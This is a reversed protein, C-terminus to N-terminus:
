RERRKRRIWYGGGILAIAAFSFWQIAYGLHPGESLDIEVQPIPAARSEEDSNTQALYLGLLPYPLQSQIADLDVTQWEERPEQQSPTPRSALWGLSPSAQGTRLMGDIHVLGPRRYKDRNPLARDEYPIWGRDVLLYQDTGDLRLPTLLHVGPQGQFSPGTLVVEHDTDLTGSARVRRYPELNANAVGPLEVPPLAMAAQVAANLQRRQQLRALQWFGLRICGAAVVIALLAFGWLRRKMVAM